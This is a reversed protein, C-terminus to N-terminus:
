NFTLSGGQCFKVVLGPRFAVPVKQNQSIWHFDTDLIEIRGKFWQGEIFLEVSDGSALEMDQVGWRGFETRWLGGVAINM